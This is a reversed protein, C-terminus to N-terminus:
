VSSANWGLGCPQPRNRASAVALKSRRIMIRAPHGELEIYATDTRENADGHQHTSNEPDHDCLPYSCHRWLPVSRELPTAGHLVDSFMDAKQFTPRWHVACRDMAPTYSRRADASKKETGKARTPSFAMKQWGYYQLTTGPKETRTGQVALHLGPLM